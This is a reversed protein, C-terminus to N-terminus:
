FQDEIKDIVSMVDNYNSDQILKPDAELITRFAFELASKQIHKKYETDYEMTCISQYKQGCHNCKYTLSYGKTRDHITLGPLGIKGSCGEIECEDKLIFSGWYRAPKDKNRDKKDLYGQHIAAQDWYEFLKGDSTKFMEVKEVKMM